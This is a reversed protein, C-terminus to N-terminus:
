SERGHSRRVARLASPTASATDVLHVPAEVRATAPSWESSPRARDCAACGLPCDRSADALRSM